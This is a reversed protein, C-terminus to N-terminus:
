EDGKGSVNTPLWRDHPGLRMMERGDTKGIEVAAINKLSVRDVLVFAREDTALLLNYPRGPENPELIYLRAQHLTGTGIQVEDGWENIPTDDAM